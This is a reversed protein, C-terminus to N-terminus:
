KYNPNSVTYRLVVNDASGEMQVAFGNTARSSLTLLGVANVDTASEVELHVAYDARPLTVPLPVYVSPRSNVYWANAEQVTRLDALSVASLNGATDQAPLTLRYLAMGADPVAESIDIRYGTPSKWLYAILTLQNTSPNTPVSVHYDDDRLEVIAGDIMARSTGSGVTGSASLHLARIDSKTLVAGSVVYKNKLVARGSIRETNRIGELRRNAAGALNLAEQAMAIIGVQSEPAFADYGDLRAKLSQQNGRAASVEDAFKKLYQTRNALQRTPVNDIGDPGGQLPDTDAWQYISSEWLVQEQLNAM